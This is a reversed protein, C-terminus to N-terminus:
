DDVWEDAPHTVVGLAEAAAHATATLRLVGENAPTVTGVNMEGGRWIAPDEFWGTDPTLRHTFLGDPLFRQLLAITEPVLRWRRMPRTRGWEVYDALDRGESAGIEFPELANDFDDSLPAPEGQIGMVDLSFEDAGHEYMWELLRWSVDASCDTALLKYTELSPM